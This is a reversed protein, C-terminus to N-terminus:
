PIELPPGLRLMSLRRTYEHEDIEGRAYREALIAELDASSVPKRRVGGNKDIWMMLPAIVMVAIFCIMIAEIAGM